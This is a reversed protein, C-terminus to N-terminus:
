SMLEQLKQITRTLLVRIAGDSKGTRAAIEKTPLNEVYRWRVIQKVEPPLAHIAKELADFREGRTAAHTPSTISAALVSLWEHGSDGAPSHLGVERGANRKGAHAKRAADIIRQEAIQCLWGFPDRDSLDTKSFNEWAARFTEQYIDAADERRRVSESLRREIFAILQPQYAQIYDALAAADGSQMRRTLAELDPM